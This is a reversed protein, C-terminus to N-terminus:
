NLGKKRRAAEDVLAINNAITPNEPDKAQAEAFKARAKRLDGRLMYSYGINNIVEPRPGFISLAQAYARDALDYRKLRDYSAALGLWAEGDRPLKEAARRFHQEALGYNKERYHRKGLTLDDGPDGGLLADKVAFNPEATAPTSGTVDSAAPPPPPTDEAGGPLLSALKFDPSTGCGTLATLCALAVLARVAIRM